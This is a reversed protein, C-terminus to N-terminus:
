DKKLVSYRDLRFHVRFPHLERFERYLPGHKEDAWAKASAYLKRLEVMCKAVEQENLHGRVQDFMAKPLAIKADVPELLKTSLMNEVLFAYAEHKGSPALDRIVETKIDQGKKYVLRDIVRRANHVLDKDQNRDSGGAWWLGHVTKDPEHEAGTSSTPLEGVFTINRSCSAECIDLRQGCALLAIRHDRIRTTTGEVNLHEGFLTAEVSRCHERIEESQAEGTFFSLRGELTTRVILPCTVFLRRRALKVWPGLQFEAARAPWEKDVAPTVVLRLWGAEGEDLRLGDVFKVCVLTHKLSAIVEGQSGQFLCECTGRLPKGPMGPGRKQWPEIETGVYSRLIVQKSKPDQWDAEGDYFWEYPRHAQRAPPSMDVVRVSPERKGNAISSCNHPFLMFLRDIPQNGPPNIIRLDYVEEVSFGDTGSEQFWVQELLLDVDICTGPVFVDVCM